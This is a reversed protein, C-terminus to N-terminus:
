RSGAIWDEVATVVDLHNAKHSLKLLLSRRDGGELGLQIWRKGDHDVIGYVGIRWVGSSGAVAERNLRAYLEDRSVSSRIPAPHAHPGLVTATGGQTM